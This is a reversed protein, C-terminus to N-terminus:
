QLKWSYGKQKGRLRVLDRRSFAGAVVAHEVFFVLDFIAEFAVAGCYGWGEM